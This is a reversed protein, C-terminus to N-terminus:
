EGAVAAELLQVGSAVVQRGSANIGAAIGSSGIVTGRFWAIADVAAAAIAGLGRVHAVPLATPIVQPFCPLM